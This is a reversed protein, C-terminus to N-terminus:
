PDFPVRSYNQLRATQNILINNITRTGVKACRFWVFKGSDSVTMNYSAHGSVPLLCMLVFFLTPKRSKQLVGIQPWIRAKALPNANQALQRSEILYTLKGLLRVAPLIM